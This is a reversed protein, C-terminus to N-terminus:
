PASASKGEALQAAEDERELEFLANNLTAVDYRRLARVHELQPDVVEGLQVLCRAILALRDLTDSHTLSADESAAALRAVDCEARVEDDITPIRITAARHHKGDADCFGRRLQVTKTTM